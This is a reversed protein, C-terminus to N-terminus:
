KVTIQNTGYYYTFQTLKPNQINSNKTKNLSVIVIPVM